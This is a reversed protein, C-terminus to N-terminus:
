PKAAPAPAYAKLDEGMKPDLVMLKTVVEEWAEKRGLTKYVVGLNALVEVVDPKLQLSKEFCSVSETLNKTLFLQKGLGNWSDADKPDMEVLKRM